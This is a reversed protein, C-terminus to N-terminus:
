NVQRDTSVNDTEDDIGTDLFDAEITGILYKSSHQSSGVSDVNFFFPPAQATKGNVLITWGKLSAEKIPTNSFLYSYRVVNGDSLTDTILDESLSPSNKHLEIQIPKLMINNIFIKM